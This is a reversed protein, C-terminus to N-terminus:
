LHVAILVAVLLWQPASFCRAGFLSGEKQLTTFLATERVKSWAHEASLVDFDRTISPIGKRKMEVRWIYMPPIVPIGLQQNLLVISLMAVVPVALKERLM